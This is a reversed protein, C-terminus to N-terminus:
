IGIKFVVLAQTTCQNLKFEVSGVVSECDIFYCRDYSFARMLISLGLSVSGHWYPFRTSFDCFGLFDVCSSECFRLLNGSFDSFCRFIAPSNTSFHVSFLVSVLM